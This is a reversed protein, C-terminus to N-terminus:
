QEKPLPLPPLPMWHTPEIIYVGKRSQFADVSENWYAIVTAGKILPYVLFKSGDKPATAIDQWKLAEELEKIRAKLKDNEDITLQAVKINIEAGRNADRLHNKTKKFAEELETIREDKAILM